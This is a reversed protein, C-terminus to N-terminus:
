LIVPLQIDLSIGVSELLGHTDKCIQRLSSRLMKRRQGFAAATVKELAAVSCPPHPAPSPVLEVIASSVKPSPTFAGPPLNFLIQSRCRWGSLVSLRGYDKGGPSAVIRDAVERQFMLIMKDYFPPWPEYKLLNVLLKSAIGYPLNAIIDESTVEHDGTQFAGPEIFRYRDM